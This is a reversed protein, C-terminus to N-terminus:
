FCGACAQRRASLSGYTRAGNTQSKMTSYMPWRPASYARHMAQRLRRGTGNLRSTGPKPVVVRFAQVGALLGTGGLTLHGITFEEIGMDSAKVWVVNPWLSLFPACHHFAPVAMEKWYMRMDDPDNGSLTEHCDKADWNEDGHKCLAKAVTEIAAPDPITM